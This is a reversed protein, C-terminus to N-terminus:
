IAIKIRIEFSELIMYNVKFLSVAAMLTKPYRPSEDPGGDTSIIVIPKKKISGSLFLERIDYAHTRATSSDHKGSRIRIHTTGSYSIKGDELLDCEAYVSPILKHGKAITFDHDALRVKYSMHMLIQGQKNAATLGLPVRAKDDNSMFVVVDPGFLLDLANLDDLFSKAFIRDINIKRLNNEPRFFIKQGQLELEM